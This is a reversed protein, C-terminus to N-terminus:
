ERAPSFDPSAGAAAIPHSGLWDLLLDAITAPCQDPMWHTAGREVEFRYEADVYNGTNRAAKELLAKDGDSWIHM